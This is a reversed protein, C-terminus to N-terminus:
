SKETYNQSNQFEIFQDPKSSGTIRKGRRGRAPVLPTHWWPRATMSNKFPVNNALQCSNRKQSLFFVNYNQRRRLFPRLQTLTSHAATATFVFWLAKCVSKETRDGGKGAASSRQPFCLQRFWSHGRPAGRLARPLSACGPWVAPRQKHRYLKNSKM